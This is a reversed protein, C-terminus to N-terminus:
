GEIFPNPVHIFRSLDFTPAYKGRELREFLGEDTLERLLNSVRKQDVKTAAAVAAAELPTRRAAFIREGAWLVLEADTPPRPEIDKPDCSFWGGEEEADLLDFRVTLPLGVAEEFAMEYHVPPHEPGCNIKDHELVLGKGGGDPRRLRIVSRAKNRKMVSGFAQAGKQSDRSAKAIHDLALVPVGWREIKWLLEVIDKQDSADTGVSGLTLSDLIVLRIGLGEVDNQIQSLTNSDGLPKEPAYYYVGLDPRQHGVGRAVQYARRTMEEIGLNEVDIYLVPGREVPIGLFPEGSAVCNALYLALYSKGLGGDGFLLNFQSDLVLGHVVWRVPGPEEALGLPVASPVGVRPASIKQVWRNNLDNSTTNM